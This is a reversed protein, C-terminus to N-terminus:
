FKYSLSYILGLTEVHITSNVPEGNQLNRIVVEDSSGSRYNVGATFQLPGKTGSVGISWSFRNLKTFVTDEDGVPSFDTGAGYHLRWVGNSNLVLHGGVAVNALGRSQSIAGGYPRSSVAPASGAGPNTYTVIPQDSAIMAYASIPTYGHVDVEIEGRAATYAVGGHFEFPQRYTFAADSDFFSAGVSASGNDALSEETASVGKFLTLAPTRITGGVHVHPSLDFQAGFLPRM